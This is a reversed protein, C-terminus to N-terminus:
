VYCDRLRERITDGDLGALRGAMIIRAATFENERAAVYGIAVEPGFPVSRAEGAKALVANDCAKEFATLSGGAVAEDGLVAAERLPTPRYLQAVGNSIDALIREVSVTGGEFLVQQLFTAARHMRTTRVASRLNAADIQTRVYDVLFDCGSSKALALMEAFYAKDLVFDSRQPDGTEALVRVSERAASKMPESLFDWNGTQQYKAALEAARIRGADVLLASVDAGQGKILAKINHYDYKLKFVDLLAPDPMFRALDAFLDARVQSLAQNLGAESQPDFPPYGLETLVQACEAPTEAQLMRETRPKSLLNRELSRIRASLFLYDTDKIKKKKAM